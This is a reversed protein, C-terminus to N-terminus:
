WYIRFLNFFNQVKDETDDKENLDTYDNLFTMNVPESFKLVGNGASDIKEIWFRIPTEWDKM